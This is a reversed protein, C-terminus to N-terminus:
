KRLAEFGMKLALQQQYPLYITKEEIKQPKHFIRKNPERATFRHVSIVDGSGLYLM